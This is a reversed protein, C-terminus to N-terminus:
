ALQRQGNGVLHHCKATKGELHGPSSTKWPEGDLM